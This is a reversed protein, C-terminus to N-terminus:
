RSVRAAALYDEEVPDLLREAKARKDESVGLEALKKADAIWFLKRWHPCTGFAPQIPLRPAPHPAPCPAREPM